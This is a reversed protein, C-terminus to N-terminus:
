SQVSQHSHRKKLVIKVAITTSRTLIAPFLRKVIHLHSMACATGTTCRRWRKSLVARGRHAITLLQLHVSSHGARKTECRRHYEDRSAASQYWRSSGLSHLRFFVVGHTWLASVGRTSSESELWVQLM